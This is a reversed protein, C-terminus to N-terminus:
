SSHQGGWSIKSIEFWKPGYKIRAHLFLFLFYEKCEGSSRRIEDRCPALHRKLVRSMKRACASEPKSGYFYKLFYGAVQLGNSSIIKQNIRFLRQCNSSNSKEFSRPIQLNKPNLDLPNFQNTM